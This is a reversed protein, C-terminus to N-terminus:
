ELISLGKKQMAETLLRRLPEYLHQNVAIISSGYLMNSAGSIESVLGGAERVIVIGAAIDWPSLGSEWFGEYRGAAVWSLDLAASGFRRVGSTKEMVANLMAVFSVKGGRNGFPVGTALLSDTLKTRDSVRIRRRNLYAGANKEAWFLEDRIPEYVVGAVLEEERELGISIAFHPIGHLFNTTGDIPDVIWRESAGDNEIVGSEEMLFGYSPRAKSLEEYLIHETRRDAETVFDGPGKKSVQLHEVEGFDRVLLRSAKRAAADMVNILPSSFSM